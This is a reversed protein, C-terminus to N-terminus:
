REYFCLTFHQSLGSDSTFGSQAYGSAMGMFDAGISTAPKVGAGLPVSTRVAM